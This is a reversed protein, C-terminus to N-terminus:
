RETETEKLSHTCCKMVSVAIGIDSTIVVSTKRMMPQSLPLSNDIL